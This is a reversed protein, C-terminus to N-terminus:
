VINLSFLDCCNQGTQQIVEEVSLGKLEAVKEAVHAVYAPENGKGRHPVPALYPADTEILLRSLPVAKAVAQVNAANKFTVIGSISIYFGLAMAQEAMELSETFCHMVGGCKEASEERLISITDERADRSHIILPKRCENAVQVHERFSLQMRDHHEKNYHYDLGTEGIAVINDDNAWFLLDAISPREEGLCESPHIGVSGSVVAHESALLKVVPIDALETSVCVMHRVGVDLARQIPRTVDGDDATLDMMHLHCHSDILM